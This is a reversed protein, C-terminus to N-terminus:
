PPPSAPPVAQALAGDLRVTLEVAVGGDAYFRPPARPRAKRVQEEVSAALARDGDMRAGVTGGSAVPLDRVAALCAARAAARAARATGGRTVTANEVQERLTPAGVGACTVTRRAWDVAAPAARAGPALLAVAAVLAARGARGVRAV